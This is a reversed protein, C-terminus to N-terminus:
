TKQSVLVYIAASESQFDMSTTDLYDTEDKDAFKKKELERGYEGSPLINIIVISIFKMNIEGVVREIYDGFDQARYWGYSKDANKKAMKPLHLVLRGKKVVTQFPSLICSVNEQM